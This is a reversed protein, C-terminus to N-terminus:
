PTARRLRTCISGTTSIGCCRSAMRAVQLLLLGMLPFPFLTSIALTAMTTPGCSASRSNGFRYPLPAVTLMLITILQLLNSSPSLDSIKTIHFLRMPDFFGRFYCIYFTVDDRCCHLLACTILVIVGVKVVKDWGCSV